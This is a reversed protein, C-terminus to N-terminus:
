AVVGLHTLHASQTKGAVGVIYTTSTGSGKIAKGTDMFPLRVVKATGGAPRDALGQGEANLQFRDSQVKRGLFAERSTFSSKRTPAKQIQIRHSEQIM